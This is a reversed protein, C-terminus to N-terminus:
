SRGEQSPARAHRAGRRPRFDEKRLGLRRMKEYLSRPQIGAREATEGVRGGTERLLSTLYASELSEVVGRRVERLPRDLWASPVEGFTWAGPRSAGQGARGHRSRRIAEPLDDLTIKEGGCLLMAREIVNILERVNGPWSYEGLAELAEPAISDVECGIRPRLYDIYNEVLDAVDGRRQRLPPVTLSVVSLRYYLDRRFRGEAVERELDRNSAGMVRVDVRFPKEGGIRQIEHDQLVRLLKVQLHHPMEGIEDLFITGNHAIEFCGRRSRTAGTFAGEEHGFLESDLLSEPLAGCNVAVFPGGSRPGEAHIARALREKGVGTEGLVLLSTDSHVVRRVVRVFAQMTPSNSIFDTLQPQALPRRAALDEQTREVRRDLVAHLAERLSEEPLGAYLVMDCGAALLQAREEPDEHDCVVVIAPSEPLHQFLAVSNGLPTPIVSQAAVLVDGGRRAAREWVHSRRRVTEVLLDGKPLLRRLQRRRETNEVALIVRLLM